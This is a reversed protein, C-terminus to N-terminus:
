ASAVRAVLKPLEDYCRLVTPRVAEVSGDRVCAQIVRAGAKEAWELCRLDDDLVIAKGPEVQSTEFIREYFEPGEKACDVLDPGFKSGIYADLGAGVLAAFLYESPWASAMQVRVGDEYLRQLACEAGDFSADCAALADFQLRRGIDALSADDRDPMGAAAFLERTARVREEELWACFGALPKGQFTEDYRRLAADMVPGIASRWTSKGGGVDSSLLSALEDSYQERLLSSDCLTSDLDVFLCIGDAM